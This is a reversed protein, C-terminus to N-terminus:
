LLYEFFGVFLLDFFVNKDRIPDPFTTSRFNQYWDVRSPRAVEFITTKALFEWYKRPFDPNKQKKGSKELYGPNRFVMPELAM